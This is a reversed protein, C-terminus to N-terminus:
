GDPKEQNKFWNESQFIYHYDFLVLITLQCDVDWGAKGSILSQTNASDWNM